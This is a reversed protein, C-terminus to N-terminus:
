RGDLASFKSPCCQAMSDLVAESGPYDNRISFGNARFVRLMAHNGPLITGTIRVLMEERGVHVVSQPVAAISPYAKAGLVQDRHPNILYVTGTFACLNETLARGVSGVTATAGILAISKPAFLADLGTRQPPLFDHPSVARDSGVPQIIEPPSKM